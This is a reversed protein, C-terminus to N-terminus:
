ITEPATNPKQSTKGKLDIYFCGAWGEDEVCEWNNVNTARSVIEAETETLQVWGRCEGEACNCVPYWYKDGM